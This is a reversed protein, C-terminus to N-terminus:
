SALSGKVPGSGEDDIIFGGAHFRDLFHMFGPRMRIHHELRSAFKETLERIKEEGELTSSLPEEIVVRYPKREGPMVFMPILAAGTKESLIAPGLPLLIRKGFFRFEGHKGLRRQTGSGDGTIMIIGNSNLWKFAVKLFSDAKIIEAPIKSEYKLRLRFAVNKGIWSLGDDSPLGIQKMGYGLKSLVVLPVHVPGLHGHVLIAGRGRELAKDLNEIGSFELFGEITRKDLKPFLFILLRDIYHNRMYDRVAAEREKFGSDPLLIGIKELLFARKGKSLAYHIDGMMRLVKLGTFFPLVTLLWRVPYWVFLRMVDRSISESVVM